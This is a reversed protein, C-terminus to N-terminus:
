WSGGGGDGPFYIASASANEGFILYLGLATAPAAVFWDFVEAAPCGMCGITILAATGDAAMILTVGAMSQWYDGSWDASYGGSTDGPDASVAQASILLPAMVLTAALMLVLLSERM